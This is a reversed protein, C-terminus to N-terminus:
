ASAQPSPQLSLTTLLSFFFDTSLILSYSEPTFFLMLFQCRLPPFFFWPQTGANITELFLYNWVFFFSLVENVRDAFPFLTNSIFCCGRALLHFRWTFQSAELTRMKHLPM